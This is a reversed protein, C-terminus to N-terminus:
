FKTSHPFMQKHGQARECGTRAFLSNVIVIRAHEEVKIGELLLDCVQELREKTESAVTEFLEDCFSFSKLTFGRSDIDVGEEGVVEQM